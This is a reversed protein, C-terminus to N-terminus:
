LPLTLTVGSTSNTFDIRDNGGMGDIVDDGGNGLFIETVDTRNSGTLTDNFNSGRLGEINM